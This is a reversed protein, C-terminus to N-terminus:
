NKISNKCLELIPESIKVFGMSHQQQTLHWRHWVQEWMPLFTDRNPELPSYTCRPNNNVM